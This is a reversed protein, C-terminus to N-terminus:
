NELRRTSKLTVKTQIPNSQSNPTRPSSPDSAPSEVPRYSAEPPTNSTLQTEQPQDTARVTDAVTLHVSERPVLEVCGLVAAAVITLSLAVSTMLKTDQDFKRRVDSTATLTPMKTGCQLLSAVFRTL